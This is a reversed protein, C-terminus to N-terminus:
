IWLERSAAPSARRDSERRQRVPQWQGNSGGFIYDASCDDATPDLTVTTGIYECSAPYYRRPTRNSDVPPRRAEVTQTRLPFVGGTTDPLQLGPLLLHDRPPAILIATRCCEPPLHITPPADMITGDAVSFGDVRM